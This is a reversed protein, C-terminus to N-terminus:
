RHAYEGEHRAITKASPAFFASGSVFLGRRPILFDDLRAQRSLPVPVGLDVGDIWARSQDIVWLKRPNVRFHQGNPTGGHLRIPGAGLAWGAVSALANLAAPQRWLPAPLVAALGNLLRTAATEAM